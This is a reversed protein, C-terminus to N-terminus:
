EQLGAPEHLQICLADLKKKKDLYRNTNSSVVLINKNEVSLPSLEFQRSKASEFKSSLTINTLTPLSM